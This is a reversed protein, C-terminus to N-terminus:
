LQAFITQACLIKSVVKLLYIHIEFSKWFTNWVWCKNKLNWLTFLLKSNGGLFDLDDSLPFAKMPAAERTKAQISNANQDFNNEDWPLRQKNASPLRRQKFSIPINNNDIFSAMRHMTPNTNSSNAAIEGYPNSKQSRASSMNSTTGSSSTASVVWEIDIDNGYLNSMLPIKVGYEISMDPNLTPLKNRNLRCM